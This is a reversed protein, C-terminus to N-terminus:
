NYAKIANTVLIRSQKNLEAVQVPTQIESRFKPALINKKIFDEANKGAPTTRVMSWDLAKKGYLVKAAIKKIGGYSDIRKQLDILIIKEGFSSSNVLVNVVKDKVIQINSKINESNTDVENFLVPRLVKEMVYKTINKGEATNFIDEFNQKQLLLDRWKAPLEEESLNEFSDRVTQQVVARILQDLAGSSYLYEVLEIKAKKTDAASSLDASLQNIMSNLTKKAKKPDYEIYSALVAAIPKLMSESPLKAVEDYPSRPLLVSLCPLFNAFEKKISLTTADKKDTIMWNNVNNVVLSLAKDTLENTCVTIMATVGDEVNYKELGKLCAHYKSVFGDITKKQKKYEDSGLASALLHNLKLTGLEKAFSLAYNKTCEDLHAALPDGKLKVETCAVFKKEVDLLAQPMKETSLEAMIESKGFNVVIKQTAKKLLNDTCVSTDVLTDLCSALQRTLDLYLEDRLPKLKKLPTDRLFENISQGTIDKGATLATSRSVSNSCIYLNTTYDTVTYKKDKRSDLCQDLATHFGKELEKLRDLSKDFRSGLTHKFRKDALFFAIKKVSAKICSNAHEEVKEASDNLCDTNSTNLNNLFNDLDEQIITMPKVQNTLDENRAKLLYAQVENAFSEAAVEATTQKKLRDGCEQLKVDSADNNLCKKFEASKELAIKAIREKSMVNNMLPNTTISDIVVSAGAEITLATACINFQDPLSTKNKLDSGVQAVCAKFAPTINKKIEQAKEPTSAKETLTKTLSIDSIKLIGEKMSYLACGKVNSADLKTKLICDIYLKAQAENFKPRDSEPLKAGLNERSLEYALAVGTNPVLSASLAALCHQSDYSANWSSDICKNFPAIMKEMWLSRRSKDKIGEGELIKDVFGGILNNGLYKLFSKVNPDDVKTLKQKMGDDVIKDVYNDLEAQNPFYGILQSNFPAITAKIDKKFDYGTLRAALIKIRSKNTETGTSKLDYSKPTVLNIADLEGAQAQISFIWLFVVPLINM